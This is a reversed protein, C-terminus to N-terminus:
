YFGTNEFRDNIFTWQYFFGRLNRPITIKNVKIKARPIYDGVICEGTLDGIREWECRKLKFINLCIGNMCNTGSNNEQVALVLEDIDDGDFDYQGIQLRASQLLESEYFGL